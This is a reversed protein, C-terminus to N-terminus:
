YKVILPMSRDRTLTTRSLSVVPPLQHRKYENIKLMRDIWVVTDIPVDCEAACDMPSLNEEILCYLVSDLIDYAPLSDSDKQGDRLEASPAKEMISLPIVEGNRNIYEAVDYVETKYLDGLISLAGNTDGYLTGYGMAAESKNTTNLVLTDFKNSVAMLLMGRIRSQLNEEAVSFPADGFLPALTDLSASFVKEIPLRECRIGLNAALQLSDTVSGDSSFRSPMTVGQVCQAGLAEVAVAAVVASDIGGSLGITARKFGSKAFYDRLATVMAKYAHRARASKGDVPLPRRFLGSFGSRGDFEIVASDEAFNKMKLMLNGERDFVMSGGHYVTDVSGGVIGCSIIPRGLSRALASYNEADEEIISHAFRKAALHIILDPATEESSFCELTDIFQIDDGIVVLIDGAETKVIYQPMGEEPADFGPSDMGAFRGAEDRGLPMAKSFCDAMKGGAIVCVSDFVEDGDGTPMGILSMCARGGEADAIDSLASMCRDTFDPHSVLDYLPAGSLALEGFLVLDAGQMSAAAMRDIIKDRNAAVDGVTPNIQCIAIKM